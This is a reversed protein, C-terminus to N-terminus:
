TEVGDDRALLHRELAAIWRELMPITVDKEDDDSPKPKTGGGGDGGGADDGGGGTLCSHARTYTTLADLPTTGVALPLTSNLKGSYQDAPVTAPKKDKCWKVEYMAGHCIARTAETNGNEDELKLKLKLIDMLAQRTMNNTENDHKAGGSGAQLSQTFMDDKPTSNWGVVYYHATVKSLYQGKTWEFNDCMSFVNANHPQYDAFLQNSSSLLSFHKLFEAPEDEDQPNQKVGKQRTMPSSPPSPQEKNEDWQELPVKNGIFAEAQKSIIQDKGDSNKDHGGVIFPSVDTQLDVGLDFKKLDWLRDSEVVWSSFQPISSRAEEPFTTAKDPIHRIVLWRNPAAPFIPATTPTADPATDPSHLGRAVRAETHSQSQAAETGAAVVGSRFLRPLTWHLYVGIRHYRRENTALNTFRSNLLAPSTNYLDVPNLIDPKGPEEGAGSCVDENFVFADLKMPILVAQKEEAM